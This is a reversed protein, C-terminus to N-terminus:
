TFYPNSAKLSSKKKKSARVKIKSKKKALMEKYEIIKKDALQMLDHKAQLIADTTNTAEYVKMALTAIEDDDIFPQKQQPIASKLTTAIGDIRISYTGDQDDETNTSTSLSSPPADEDQLQTPEDNDAQNPSTPLSPNTSPAPSSVSNPSSVAQRKRPALNPSTLPIQQSLSPQLPRSNILPIHPLDSTTNPSIIPPLKTPIPIQPITPTTINYPTTTNNKTHTPRTPPAPVSDLGIAKAYQALSQDLNQVISHLTDTSLPINSTNKTARPFFLRTHDSPAFWERITDDNNDETTMTRNIVYLKTSIGKQISHLIAYSIINENDLILKCTAPSAPDKFITTTICPLTQLMTRQSQITTAITTIQQYYKTIAQRASKHPRVPLPIFTVPLNLIPLQPNPNAKSPFLINALLHHDAANSICAIYVDEQLGEIFTYNRRVQLGFAQLFYCFNHLLSTGPLLPKLLTHLHRLIIQTHFTKRGFVHPPLGAVFAIPKHKPHNCPPLTFHIASLIDLPVDLDLDIQTHWREFVFDYLFTQLDTYDPTGHRAYAQETPQANKILTSFTLAYSPTLNKISDYTIQRITLKKLLDSSTPRSQFAAKVLTELFRIASGDNHLKALSDNIADIKGRRLQCMIIITDASYAIKAPIKNLADMYKSKPAQTKTPEIDQLNEKHTDLTIPAFTVAEPVKQTHQKTPSLLKATASNQISSPLKYPSKKRALKELIPSTTSTLPPLNVPSPPMTATPSLFITKYKNNRNRTIKKFFYYLSINIPSYNNDKFLFPLQCTTKRKFKSANNNTNPQSSHQFREKTTADEKLSTKQKLFSDNLLNKQITGKLLFPKSNTVNPSEYSAHQIKKNLTTATQNPHLHDQSDTAIIKNLSNNFNHMTSQSKNLFSTIKNLLNQINITRQQQHIPLHHYNIM